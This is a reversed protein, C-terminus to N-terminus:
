AERERRADEEMEGLLKMYGDEAADETAPANHKKLFSGRSFFFASILTTAPITLLIGFSGVMIQLLETIIGERNLLYLMSDGCTYVLLLISCFSSGIYALVLTNSMTGIIDRGISFGSSVLEGFTPRKIKLALEHLSAAIDVAVDMIAGVAGIIIAAFVVAKLDLEGNNIQLLYISQEDKFGTLKLVTDSAFTLVGSILVGFICGLGASLSKTNPGNVLVLTMVIIYACVTFAWFYIDYGALVAPIFIGFVAFCTLGLTITTALGKMRGFVLLLIVFLAILVAIGGMRNFEAFFWDTTEEGMNMRTLIVRDGVSVERPNAPDYKSQNQTATLIGGEETECVFYLDYMVADADTPLGTSSDIREGVSRVTCSIYEVDSEVPSVGRQVVLFLLAAVTVSLIFLLIRLLSQKFKM